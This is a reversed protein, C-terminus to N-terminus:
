LLAFGTLFIIPLFLMDCLVLINVNTKRKQKGLKLQPISFVTKYFFAISIYTSISM